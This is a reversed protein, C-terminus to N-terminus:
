GHETSQVYGFKSSENSNRAVELTQFSRQSYKFAGKRFSKRSMGALFEEMLCDFTKQLCNNYLSPVTMTTMNRNNFLPSFLEFLLLLILRTQVVHSGCGRRLIWHVGHPHGRDLDCHRNEQIRDLETKLLPAASSDLGLLFERVDELEELCVHHLKMMLEGFTGLGM